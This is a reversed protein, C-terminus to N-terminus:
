GTLLPGKLALGLRNQSSHNKNKILDRENDTLARGSTDHQDRRTRKSNSDNLKM